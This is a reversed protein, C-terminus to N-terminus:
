PTLRFLKVAGTDAAAIWVGDASFALKVQQQVPFTKTITAEAISWIRLTQDVSSTALKKGDISVVASVIDASVRKEPLATDPVPGKLTATVKGTKRDWVRVDPSTPSWTLLTSGDQSLLVMPSQTDTSLERKVKGTKLDVTRLFHDPTAVIAEKGDPLMGVSNARLTLLKKADKVSYLAANGNFGAVMLRAGTSDFAVQSLADPHIFTQVVTGGALEVIRVEFSSDGIALRKGDPSFALSIPQERAGPITLTVAGTNLSWLRVTKDRSGSAIATSDPSFAIATVVDTHGRLMVPSGSVLPDVPLANLAVALVLITV